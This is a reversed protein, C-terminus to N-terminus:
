QKPPSSVFMRLLGSLARLALRAKVGRVKCAAADVAVLAARPGHERAQTILSERVEPPVQNLLKKAQKQVGASIGAFWADGDTAGPDPVPREAESDTRESKNDNM